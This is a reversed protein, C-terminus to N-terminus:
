SVAALRLRIRQLGDAVSRALRAAEPDDPPNEAAWECFAAMLAARDVSIRSDALGSEIIPILAGAARLRNLAPTPPPTPQSM